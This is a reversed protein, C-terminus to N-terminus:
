LENLLTLEDFVGSPLSTLQNDYLYRCLFTVLTHIRFFPSLFSPCSAFYCTVCEWIFAADIIRCLCFSSVSIIWAMDHCIMGCSLFLSALPSLLFMAHSSYSGPLLVSQCCCCSLYCLSLLRQLTLCSSVLLSLSLSFSLLRWVILLVCSQLLALLLICDLTPKNPQM